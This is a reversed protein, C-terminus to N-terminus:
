VKKQAGVNIKRFFLVPFLSRQSRHCIWPPEGRASAVGSRNCLDRFSHKQYVIITLLLIRIIIVILGIM